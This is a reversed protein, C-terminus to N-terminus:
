LVSEAEGLGMQCSARLLLGRREKEVRRFRDVVGVDLAALLRQRTLPNTGIDRRLHLRLLQVGVRVEARRRRLRAAALELSTNGGGCRGFLVVNM